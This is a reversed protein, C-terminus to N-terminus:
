LMMKYKQKVISEVRSEFNEVACTISAEGIEAIIKANHLCDLMMNELRPQLDYIKNFGKIYDKQPYRKRMYEAVVGILITMNKDTTERFQERSQKSFHNIKCMRRFEGRLRAYLADIFNEFNSFYTAFSTDTIGVDRLLLVIIDMTDSRFAIANKDFYEMQESIIESKKEAIFDKVSSQELLLLTMQNLRYETLENPAIPASQGVNVTVASSSDKHKLAERVYKYFKIIGYVTAAAYLTLEIAFKPDVAM